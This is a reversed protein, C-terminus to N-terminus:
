ENSMRKNILDVVIEVNNSLTEYSGNNYIVYDFKEDIVYQDLSTESVSDIVDIDTREIRINIGGLSAIKDFENEFRMDTIIWDATGSYDNMLAEVWYNEHLARMAMAEDILLQRRTRNLEPIFHNRYAQDNSEWLRENFWQPFKHEISSKLKGAFKKTKLFRDKLHKKFELAATDKGAQAKGSIAIIM